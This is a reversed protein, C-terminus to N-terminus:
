DLKLIKEIEEKESKGLFKSVNKLNAEKTICLDILSNKLLHDFCKGFSNEFLTNILLTEDIKTIGSIKKLENMKTARILYVIPSVFKVNSSELEKKTNRVLTEIAHLILQPEIKQDSKPEFENEIALNYRIKNSHPYYKITTDGRILNVSTDVIKIDEISQSNSPYSLLNM